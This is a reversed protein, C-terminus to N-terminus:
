EYHGYCSVLYLKNGEIRYILRHEQTIRRSYYGQLDGKLKEPKGKGSLHEDPNDDIDIILTWLKYPLSKNEDKLKDIDKKFQRSLILEM